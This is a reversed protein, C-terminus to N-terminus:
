RRADTGRASGVVEHPTGALDALEAVLEYSRLRDAHPHVNTTMMIEDAGTARLLRDLGALVTQPSGVLYSSTAADAAAREEDTWPHAAAEEPSPFADARGGRLRLTALRLPRALWEAREDDEACVVAATVIVYPRERGPLRAWRDDVASGPGSGGDSGAGRDPGPGGDPDLVPDPGSGRDPAPRDTLRPLDVAQGPLRPRFGSRYIKLAPLTDAASFHHAFAFPLGLMGALRAGYVSSGLLWIPPTEDARPFAAVRHYPHGPPFEGGGLFTALDALRDPFDEVASPGVALGAPRRLAAATARNTGPARGVGLDIRGPFLAGLTGFQEAVTLPAHNPLMVGGSGVRITSTAAAVQGILVATASSAVGPMGHHEALWYRSYGLQEARRALDLM